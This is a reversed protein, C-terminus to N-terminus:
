NLYASSFKTSPNKFVEFTGPIGLQDSSSQSDWLDANHKPQDTSSLICKDFKKIANQNSNYMADQIWVLINNNKAGYLRLGGKYCYYGGNDIADASPMSANSSRKMAYFLPLRNLSANSISYMGEFYCDMASTANSESYIAFPVSTQNIGECNDSFNKDQDKMDPGMQGRILVLDVQSALLPWNVSGSDSNVAVIKYDKLTKFNVSQKKSEKLGNFAAVKINYATNQQLNNLVYKKNLTSAIRKQDDYIHYEM